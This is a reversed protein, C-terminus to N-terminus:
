EPNFGRRASKNLALGKLRQRITNGLNQGSNAAAAQLEADHIKGTLKDSRFAAASNGRADSFLKASAAATGAPTGAVFGEDPVASRFEDLRELVRSAAAQDEPNAYDGAKRQLAKRWSHFQASSMFSGSPPTELRELIAHTTKADTPLFGEGELEARMRRAFESMVDSRLNGGNARFEDFGKSAEAKLEKSTPAPAAQKPRQTVGPIARDGARVAPNIPSALAGFNLARGTISPDNVDQKGTYVDGPLTAADKGSEYIGRALRFPWTDTIGFEETAPSAKARARARALALARQQELTLEM